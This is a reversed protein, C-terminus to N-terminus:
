RGYARAGHRRQPAVFADHQRDHREGRDQRPQGVVAAPRGPQGERQGGDRQGAERVDDPQGGLLDAPPETGRDGAHQLRRQAVQRLEEHDDEGQV